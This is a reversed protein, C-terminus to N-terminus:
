ALISALAELRLRADAQMTIQNDRNFTSGIESLLDVAFVATYVTFRELDDTDTHRAALWADIYTTHHGNKLLAANTLAATYLDDGFAMTDIDVIGSLTGDAIILNKTTIDHLFARPPIVDLLAARKRVQTRVSRCLAGLGTGRHESRNLNAELVDTWAPLLAPDSYSTAYGYGSAPPLSAVAQQIAAVEVALAQLQKTTLQRYVHGLDTGDLRDMVMYPFGFEDRSSSGAHLRPLPIGLPTLVEHWYLAGAFHQTADPGGLRVVVRSGDQFTVEYVWHHFGTPFRTARVPEKGCVRAAVRLAHRSSIV